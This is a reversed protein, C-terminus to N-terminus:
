VVGRGIKVDLGKDRFYEAITTALLASKIRLLAPTDGTACVVVSRELGEKGLDKEIFERVERGREGILSIVNVDASSNRAIMGITTSKGVGSGAFIGVRQGKGFTILGDIARIGTTIPESIRKRNLPNPPEAYISRSYTTEIPGLNDLPNGIGDIVRGLLGDGLNVTLPKGTAIIEMGPSINETNGLVMSLIKNNKFGVIETRTIENGKKDKLICVEGIPVKPGESEIVMGIVQTIKGSKVIIQKQKLTQKIKSIEITEFM